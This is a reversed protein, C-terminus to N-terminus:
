IGLVEFQGLVLELGDDLLAVSLGLGGQLLEDADVLLGLCVEVVTVRVLRANGVLAVVLEGIDAEKAVGGLIQEPVHLGVAM